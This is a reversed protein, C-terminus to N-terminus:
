IIDYDDKLFTYVAKDVINWKVNAEWRLIWDLKFWCKEAVKRSNINEKTAIIVIRNVWLENFAYEKMFEVCEPIYWKGWYKKWIWYWLEISNIDDVYEIIWFKWIIKSDDKKRILSDWSKWENVLKIKEKIHPEISKYDEWKSWYMFHTVDDDILDYLEKSDEIKSIQIILRETELKDTINLKKM